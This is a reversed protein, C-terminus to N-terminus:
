KSEKKYELYSYVITILASLLVPGAVLVVIPIDGADPMFFLIVPGLASIMFLKGGLQHTKDWVSESMLTWPTRIGVFWNRKTKPLFWGLTLYLVAIALPLVYEIHPDAGSVKLLVLKFILTFFIFLIIWFINYEKRFSAINEHHPDLVPIAAYAIFLVGMIIPLIFIGWFKPLTGTVEGAMNWHSAVVDPLSPYIYIGVGAVLAILALLLINTLKTSM